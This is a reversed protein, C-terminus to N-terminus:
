SFIAGGQEIRLGFMITFQNRWNSDDFNIIIEGLAAGHFYLGRSPIQYPDDAAFM